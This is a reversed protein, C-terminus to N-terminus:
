LKDEKIIAQGLKELRAKIDSDEIQELAQALFNEDDSSLAGNRM